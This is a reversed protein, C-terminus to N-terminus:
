EHQHWVPQKFHRKPCVKQFSAFFQLVCIWPHLKLCSLRSYARYIYQLFLYKIVVDLRLPISDQSQTKAAVAVDLKQIIISHFVNSRCTKVLMAKNPIKITGSFAYGHTMLPMISAHTEILRSCFNRARSSILQVRYKLGFRWYSKTEYIYRKAMNFVLRQNIARCFCFNQHLRIRDHQYSFYRIAVSKPLIWRHM